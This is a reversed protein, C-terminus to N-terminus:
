GQDAYRRTEAKTARRASIIRIAENRETFIVVLLRLKESLGLVQERQEEDTSHVLDPEIIRHLDNWVTAAEDFSVRHKRHNIAAKEEDWEFQLEPL